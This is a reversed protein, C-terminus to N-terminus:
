CKCNKRFVSLDVTVELGGLHADLIHKRVGQKDEVGFYTFSIVDMDGSRTIGQKKNIIEDIEGLLGYMPKVGGSRMEINRTIPDVTDLLFFKYTTEREVSSENTKFRERITEHLWILPTGNDVNYAQNLKWENNAVIRTGNVFNVTALNFFDNTKINETEAPIKFTWVDEYIENNIEVSKNFETATYIVNTGNVGIKDGIKLWKSNCFIVKVSDLGILVVDKVTIKHNIKSLIEDQFIEVSDRM